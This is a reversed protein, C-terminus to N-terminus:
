DTLWGDKKSHLQAEIKLKSEDSAVKYERYYVNYNKNLKTTIHNIDWVNENVRIRARDVDTNPINEVAVIIIDGPKVGDIIKSKIEKWGNSYIKVGRSPVERIIIKSQKPAISTAASAGYISIGGLIILAVVLIIVLLSHPIHQPSEEASEIIASKANISTLAANPNFKPISPTKKRQREKLLLRTEYGLFVATVIFALISIKNISIVFQLIDM